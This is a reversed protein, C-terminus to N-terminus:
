YCAAVVVLFFDILVCEENSFAKRYLKLAQITARCIHFIRNWRLKLFLTETPFHRQSHAQKAFVYPAEKLEEKAKGINGSELAKVEASSRKLM